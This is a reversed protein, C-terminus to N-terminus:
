SEDEDCMPYDLDWSCIASQDMEYVGEDIDVGRLKGDAIRKGLLRAHMLCLSHRDGKSFPVDDELWILFTQPPQSCFM